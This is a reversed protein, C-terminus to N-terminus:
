AEIAAPLGQALCSARISLKEYVDSPPFGGEFALQNFIKLSADIDLCKVEYVTRLGCANLLGKDRTTIIIRSGPSFWGSDKALTHVQKIDDVNDLVAFVNRSRFRAKIEQHGLEVSSNESLCLTTALFKGRPYSVGHELFYGQFGTLSVGPSPPKALAEWEGSEHSPDVGYFVPVVKMEKKFHLDMIMLLEELCWRSSSYNNSLVVLAFRSERIARSIEESISDGMEIRKDDKFAVIGRNVLEKHLHSGQFEPVCPVEM